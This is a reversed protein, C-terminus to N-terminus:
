SEASLGGLHGTKIYLTTGQAGAIVELAEDAPLRMWSGCEYAVHDIVVVGALVLLEAGGLPKASISEYPDLRQLWVHEFKSSFLLCIEQSGQSQWIASDRTDIRVQQREHLTMQHLKVFITAGEQSYPQHSSGPPNRLYWGAGYHAQGESFVGSLVLIEEGGTHVHRPFYSGPAYRVISTARGKEEGIRDLMVREIGCQPSAIWQYQRSSIVVRQSFDANVLM